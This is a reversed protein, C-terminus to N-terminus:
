TISYCSYSVFYVIVLCLLLVLNFYRFVRVYKSSNRLDFGNLVVDVVMIGPIIYVSM